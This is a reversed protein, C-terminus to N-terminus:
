PPPHITESIEVELRPIARAKPPPELVEMQLTAREGNNETSTQEAKAMYKKEAKQPIGRLGNVLQTREQHTLELSPVTSVKPPPTVMM